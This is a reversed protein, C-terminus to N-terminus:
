RRSGIRDIRNNRIAAWLGNRTLGYTRAAESISRYMKGDKGRTPVPGHKPKMDLWASMTAISVGEAKAAATISPYEVGDWVCKRGPRGTKTM